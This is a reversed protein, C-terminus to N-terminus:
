SKCKARGWRSPLLRPVPSFLPLTARRRQCACWRPLRAPTQRAMQRQKVARCPRTTGSGSTAAEVGALNTVASSLPPPDLAATERSQHSIIPHISTIPAPMRFLRRRWPAQPVLSRCTPSCPDNLFRSLKTHSLPRVPMWQGMIGLPWSRSQRTVTVPASFRRERYARPFLCGLSVSKRNLPLPGTRLTYLHLLAKWQSTELTEPVGQPTELHERLRELATILM